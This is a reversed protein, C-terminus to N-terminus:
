TTHTEYQYVPEVITEDESPAMAREADEETLTPAKDYDRMGETGVEILDVGKGDITISDTGPALQVGPISEGKRLRKKLDTKGVLTRKVSAPANFEAWDLARKEDTVEVKDQGKRFGAKGTTYTRSKKRGALALDARLSAEFEEGHERFVHDRRHQIEAVIMRCAEKAAEIQARFGVEQEIVWEIRSQGNQSAHVWAADLLEADVDVDSQWQTENPQESM